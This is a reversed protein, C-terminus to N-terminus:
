VVITVWDVVGKVVSVIVMVVVVHGPLSESRTTSNSTSISTFFNGGGNDGLSGDSGGDRYSQSRGNRGGRESRKGYGNWHCLGFSQCSTQCRDLCCNRSRSTWALVKSSPSYKCPQCVKFTVVVTIDLPDTVEVIGTVRVEVIVVVESAVIGTVTGTVCVVVWVVLRVVISVVIVVVVQGPLSGWRCLNQM